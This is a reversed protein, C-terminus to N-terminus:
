AVVCYAIYATKWRVQLQSYLWNCTRQFVAYMAYQTTAYFLLPLLSGYAIRMKWRVHLQSYAETAGGEAYCSYRVAYFCQTCLLTVEPTSCTLFRRLHQMRLKGYKIRNEVYKSSAHHQLAFTMLLLWIAALHCVIFWEQVVASM